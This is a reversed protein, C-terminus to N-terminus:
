NTEMVKKYVAQSELNDEDLLAKFGSRTPNVVIKVLEGCENRVERVSGFKKLDTVNDPVNFCYFTLNGDKLDIIHIGWDDEDFEFNLFYKKRFYKLVNKDSISFMTDIRSEGFYYPAIRVDSKSIIIGTSDIPDFYEGIFRKKFQSEEKKFSPQATEFYIPTACSSVLTIVLFLTGSLHILKKM